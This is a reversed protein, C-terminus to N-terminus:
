KKWEAKQELYYVTSVDHRNGATDVYPAFVVRAVSEKSRFDNFSAIDKNKVNETNTKNKFSNRIDVTEKQSYDNEIENITKCGGKVNGKCSWSSSVPSCGVTILLTFCCLYKSIFRM